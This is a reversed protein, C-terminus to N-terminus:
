PRPLSRIWTEIREIADVDIRQVGIPPMPQLETDARKASLSLFLISDEPVGPVIRVGAAQGSGETPVGLTNELAHAHRLDLRSMSNPAGNHCHACNGHLYGLVERTRTDAQEIREPEAPPAEIFVGRAALSDLDHGLRLEDFGIVVTPNSEHCSRCDFRSPIEHTRKEGGDFKITTPVGVDLSLLDADDGRWQYAHYDWGEHTRRACCAISHGHCQLWVSRPM